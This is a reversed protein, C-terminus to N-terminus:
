DVPPAQVPIRARAPAPPAPAAGDPDETVTLDPHDVRDPSVLTDGPLLLVTSGPEAAPADPDGREVRHTDGVTLWGLVRPFVGDHRHRYLM